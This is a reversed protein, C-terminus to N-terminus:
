RWSSSSATPPSCSSWRAPARRLRGGPRRRVAAPSLAARLEPSVAPSPAEEVIKQHRRQISCEREGLTVVHATAHRRLDAGRRAPGREVYRECFVTGDGFAAAAERGAAALAAPWTPPTASSGCAGAAAARGVGQGAGPLRDVREPTPGPPCCRCARARALLAKADIKSGMAAIAKAPPGVWTLGADICRRPSTPTRRCSATARTSPTPAPGGRRRSWCIARAPLDRGARQGPCASRRTPRPWTRRTPTPTPTCPSRPSALARCTAFVRRAIEGRNAVLLQPDM